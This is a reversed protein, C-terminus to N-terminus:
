LSLGRISLWIKYKAVVRINYSPNDGYLGTVYKFYTVFYGNNNRLILALVICNRLIFDSDSHYVITDGVCNHQLYWLKGSLWRFIFLAFQKCPNFQFVSFVRIINKIDSIMIIM